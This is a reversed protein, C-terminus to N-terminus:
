LPMNTEFLPNAIMSLHGYTSMPQSISVRFSNPCVHCSDKVKQAFDNVIFSDVGIDHAEIGNDVGM